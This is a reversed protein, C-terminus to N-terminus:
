AHAFMFQWGEIRDSGKLRRGPPAAKDFCRFIQVDGMPRDPLLYPMQFAPKADRQERSARAADRQGVM